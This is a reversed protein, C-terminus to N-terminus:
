PGVNITLSPDDGTGNLGLSKLFYSDGDSEYIFPNGWPDPLPRSRLPVPVLIGPDWDYFPIVLSPTLAGLGQDTSPYYGNDSHYRSLGKAIELLEVRAEARRHRNILTRTAALSAVELVVAALM